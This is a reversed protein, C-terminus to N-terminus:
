QEIQKLMWDIADDLHSFIKFPVNIFYKEFNAIRLADETKYVIAFALLKPFQKTYSKPLINRSYDHVRNSIYGFSKEKYFNYALERLIHIKKENMEVGEKSTVVMFTEYFEVKAFDLGIHETPFHDM